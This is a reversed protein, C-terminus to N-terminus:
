RIRRSVPRGGVVAAVERDDSKLQALDVPKALMDDM